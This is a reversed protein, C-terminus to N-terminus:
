SDSLFSRQVTQGATLPRDSKVVFAEGPNLGALIEVQGNDRQGVQVSRAEVRTADADGVTVFVVPDASNTTSGDAPDATAEIDADAEPEAALDLASEPISLVSNSATAVNVRALLGSSIQNGPNPITIEVPILRAAADAVPSIQTVSGRFTETPFADLRVEVAQGTRFQSLDRDSVQIVINIQSLDGIELLQQGAQILDGPEALRMLVVGTLPAELEAHTLREAAQDVIASQAAVRREASAIARERTSVQEELSRLVQEATRANTQALEAAQESVAGEQALQTLREADARAQALEAQARGVQANAEALQSRAQDVESQRAALEARQQGSATLLLDNDLQALPEGQRVSDGVDAVLSLLQGEARSRLSVTRLPQTTGNYSAGLQSAQTEAIAIDVLPPKEERQQQDAGRAPPSQANGQPQLGCGTALLAFPLFVGLTLRRLMDLQIM